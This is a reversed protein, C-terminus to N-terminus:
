RPTRLAWRRSTYPQGHVMGHVLKMGLIDRFFGVSAETDSVTFSFHFLNVLM